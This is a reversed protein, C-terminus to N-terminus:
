VEIVTCYGKHEDLHRTKSCHQWFIEKLMKAVLHSWLITKVYGAGPLQWYEECMFGEQELFIILYMTKSLSIQVIVYIKFSFCLEREKKKQDKKLLSTFFAAEKIGCYEM